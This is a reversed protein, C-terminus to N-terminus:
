RRSVELTSHAPNPLWDGKVTSVTGSSYANFFPRARFRAGTNLDCLVRTYVRGRAAAAKAGVDAQDGERGAFAACGRWVERIEAM